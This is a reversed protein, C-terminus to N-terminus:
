KDMGYADIVAEVASQRAAAINGSTVHERAKSIKDTAQGLRPNSHLVSRSKETEDYASAKDFVSKFAPLEIVESLPKGTKIRLADILERHPELKSNKAFFTDLEYQERSVFKSDDKVEPKSEPLGKDALNEMLTLVNAEGGFKAQLKQLIPQVKGVKGVYGFTDKVAKLASEDSTFTKGLEKSLVDKISITAKSDTREGDAPTVDVGDVLTEQTNAETM